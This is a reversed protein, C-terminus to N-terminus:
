SGTKSSGPSNNLLAATVTPGSSSFLAEFLSKGANTEELAAFDCNAFRVNELILKAQAMEIDIRCDVFVTDKWVEREGLNYFGGKFYNQEAQNGKPPRPEGFQKKNLVSKLKAYEKATDWALRDVNPNEFRESLLPLALEKFEQDRLPTRKSQARGLLEKAVILANAQKNADRTEPIKLASGLHKTNVFRDIFRDLKGSIDSLRTELGDVRKNIAELKGADGVQTGLIAVQKDVPAIQTAIEKPVYQYVYFSFGLSILGAIVPIAKWAFPLSRENLNRVENELVTLRQDLPNPSPTTSM